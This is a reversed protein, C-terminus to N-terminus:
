RLALALVAQDDDCDASWREADARVFSVVEEPDPARDGGFREALRELM